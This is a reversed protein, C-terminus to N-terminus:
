RPKREPVHRKTDDAFCCISPRVLGVIQAVRDSVIGEFLVEAIEESAEGQNGDGDADPVLQDLDRWYVDDDDDDEELPAGDNQDARAREREELARWYDEEVEANHVRDPLEGDETDVPPLEDAEVWYTAEDDNGERAARRGVSEEGPATQVGGSAGASASAHAGRTPSASGAPGQHARRPREEGADPDVATAAAAGAETDVDMPDSATKAKSRAKHRRARDRRRRAALREADADLLVGLLGYLIPASTRLQEAIEALQFSELQEETATAARFHLGAKPHTLGILEERCAQTVTDRAWAETLTHTAPNQYLAALIDTPNLAPAIDDSQISTLMYMIFNAPTTGLRRITDCITARQHDTCM